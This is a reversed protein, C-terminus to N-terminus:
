TIHGFLMDYYTKADNGLTLAVMKLTSLINICLVGTFVFIIATRTQEPQRQRTLSTDAFIKLGRYVAIFGVVQIIWVALNIFTKATASVKDSGGSINSGLISYAASEDFVTMNIMSIFEDFSLLIIGIVIVTIAGGVPTDKTRALGYIGVGMLIVGMLTVFATFLTIFPGNSGGLDDLLNKAMMAFGEQNVGGTAACAEGAFFFAGVCFVVLVVRSFVKM